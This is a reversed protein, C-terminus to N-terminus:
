DPLLEQMMNGIQQQRLDGVTMTYEIRTVGCPYRNNIQNENSPSNLIINANNDLQSM